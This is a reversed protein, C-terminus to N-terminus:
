ADAAREFESLVFTKVKVTSRKANTALAEARREGEELVAKKRVEIQTKASSMRSDLEKKLEAEAAEARQFALRKGEAQLQKRRDEAEKLTVEVKVEAERIQNLIDAKGKSSVGRDASATLM